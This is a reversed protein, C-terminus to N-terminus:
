AQLAEGLEEWEAMLVQLEAKQDALEQTVRQTEEASVFSQLATESAGIATELDAIEQELEGLRGEMQKRKIPNLRRSKSDNPSAEPQNGNTPQAAAHSSTVTKQLL